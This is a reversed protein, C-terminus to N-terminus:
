TPYSFSIFQFVSKSNVNKYRLSGFDIHPKTWGLYQQSSLEYRHERIFKVYNVQNEVLSQQLKKKEINELVMSAFTVKLQSAESM